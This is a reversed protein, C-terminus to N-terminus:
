RMCFKWDTFAVSVVPVYHYKMYTLENDNFHHAYHLTMDYMFKFVALM